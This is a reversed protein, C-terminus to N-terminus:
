TWGGARRSVHCRVADLILARETPTFLAKDGFELDIPVMRASREVKERWEPTLRDKM